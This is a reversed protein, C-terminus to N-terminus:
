PGDGRTLLEVLFVALHQVPVQRGHEQSGQHLQLLCGSCTTVIRDAEQRGIGDLLQRRMSSSLEPHRLQFLGGAGCCQQENERGALHLGSVSGLLRRPPATIKAHLRLHCSDHYYVTEELNVAALMRQLGCRELFTSFECLRAAFREARQRWEPADAFLAPYTNLHSYCSACPTVIPCDSGEFADINSMALQRAEARKGCSSFALGCCTQEEPFSIPHHLHTDLLEETAEQVAPQLHRSFCGSFLAVTEQEGESSPSPLSSKKTQKAGATTRPLGAPLSLRLRLGSDTPLLAALFRDLSRCSLGLLSALHRHKMGSQLLAEALPAASPSCVTLAERAASVLLPTDIGRPCEARCAGCQLCHSIIAAFAEGGEEPDIKQLLHLKGRAAMSERGTLRYLPCVPVCAGCKACRDILSRYEDPDNL